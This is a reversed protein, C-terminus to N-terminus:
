ASAEEARIARLEEIRLREYDDRHLDVLRWLARNAASQTRKIGPKSEPRSRYDRMYANYADRCSKCVESGEKRHALRGTPTGHRKDDPSM